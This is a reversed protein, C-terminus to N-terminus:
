HRWFRSAGAVAKLARRCDKATAASHAELFGVAFLANADTHALAKFRELAVLADNHAGLADQAPRLREIYRRFPKGGFLTQVFESLYRLRKLRKRVKHQDLAELREFRKGEKVVQKHLKGLRRVIHEMAREPAPADPESETRGAFAMLDLLVTQFPVARVAEPPKVKSASGKWEVLPAAAAELLPRVANVVAEDDRFEGLLAFTHALPDEWAADVGPSLTGLERLATRLRRLGVRLQHIHHEDLSGAAVESANALVQRLCAQLVARLLADGSMKEHLKPEEARVAAGCAQGSALRAGRDAKSVTSLWLGGFGVCAKALEFMPAPDGAKLEIELEMVSQSAKGAALTGEDLALEVQSEDIRIALARRSVDARHVEVLAEIPGSGDLVAALAAGAQSGDHLSADVIPVADEATSLEVNHELRHIASDGAAKLTQVWRRGEKRLRLSLKHQALLGAATDFYIAQLRIHRGGRRRVDAELSAQAEPPVGFKLELEGM